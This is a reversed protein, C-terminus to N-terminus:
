LVVLSYLFFPFFHTKAIADSSHRLLTARDPGMAPPDTPGGGGRLFPPLPSFLAFTGLFKGTGRPVFTNSL